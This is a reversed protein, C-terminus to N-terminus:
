TRPPARPDRRRADARAHRRGRAARPDDAIAKALGFDLVKVVGGSTVKINAPKLDRHIIGKEHAAELADAIQRAIRLADHMPVVRDALTQGEVMELVLGIVGDAEEVGYIAAINPHNLTALLRAERELRARARRIPHWTRRCVSSRSTANSDRTTPSTCRAWAAPASSRVPDRVSGVRRGVLSTTQQKALARGTLECRAPKWFAQRM